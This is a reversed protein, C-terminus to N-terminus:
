FLGSFPIGPLPVGLLEVFVVHAIVAGGVALPLVLRWPERGFLRLWFALLAAAAVVLGLHPLLLVFTALGALGTGIRLAGRTWPEYDAPTDVGVLVAATVAVLSAVILPWLGPGPQIADGLRLRAALVMAVVGFALPVLPGIRHAGVRVGSRPRTAPDSAPFPTDDM